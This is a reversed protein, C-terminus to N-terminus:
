EGRPHGILPPKAEGEGPDADGQEDPNGPNEDEERPSRLPRSPRNGPKPVVAPTDHASAADAIRLSGKDQPTLM